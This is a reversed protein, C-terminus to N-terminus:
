AEAKTAKKKPPDLSDAQKRLTQAQKFLADARSRLEAPTLELGGKSETVVEEAKDAKKTTPKKTAVTKEGSGDSVALDELLVGKQEAILVNLEDLAIHDSNVKPTVTVQTTPVKKLHGNTHLYALMNTGDAFKRVALVDALENAQQGSDSEVVTMMGDHYM